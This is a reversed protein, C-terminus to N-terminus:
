DHRHSLRGQLRSRSDPGVYQTERNYRWLMRYVLTEFVAGPGPLIYPPMDFVSVLGQWVLCLGAFTILARVIM